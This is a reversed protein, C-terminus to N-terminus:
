PATFWGLGTLRYYLLQALAVYGWGNLHLGDSAYLSPPIKGQDYAERDEDSSWVGSGSLAGYRLWSEQTYDRLFTEPNMFRDGFTEAAWTNYSVVQKARPSDAADDRSRFHGLILTREPALDFARQTDQKIAEPEHLNNRGIQIVHFCSRSIMEQYSTFATAPTTAPAYIEEGAQVRTFIYSGEAEGASLIGPVAGVFGPVQVVSGWEVTSDKALTVPVSGSAPIRDEPFVLRYRHHADGRRANIMSSTEGGRGFNLVPAKLYGSLLSSITADFGAPVGQEAQAGEFSSSGWLAVSPGTVTPYIFPEPFLAGDAAHAQRPASAMLAASAGVLSTAAAYRVLSRRSTAM